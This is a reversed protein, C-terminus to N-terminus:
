RVRRNHIWLNFQGRPRVGRRIPQHASETMKTVRQDILRIREAETSRFLDFIIQKYKFFFAISHTHANQGKCNEIEFSNKQWTSQMELHVSHTCMQTLTLYLKSWSARRLRSSFSQSLLSVTSHPHNTKISSCDKCLICKYESSYKFIWHSETEPLSQNDILLGIFVFCFM